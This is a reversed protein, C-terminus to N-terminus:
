SLFVVVLYCVGTNFQTTESVLRPLTTKQARRGEADQDGVRSPTERKWIPVRERVEGAVCSVNEDEYLLTYETIYSEPDTGRLVINEGRSVQCILM